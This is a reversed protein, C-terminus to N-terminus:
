CYALDIKNRIFFYCEFSTENGKRKRKEKESVGSVRLYWNMGGLEVTNEETKCQVDEKSM